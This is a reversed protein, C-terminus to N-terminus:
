KRAAAFNPDLGCDAHTYKPLPAFGTATLQSPNVSPSTITNALDPRAIHFPLGYDFPFFHKGALISDMIMFMSTKTAYRQLTIDLLDYNPGVIEKPFSFVRFPFTRVAAATSVGGVMLRLFNRREM